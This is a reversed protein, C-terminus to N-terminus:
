EDTIKAGGKIMESYDEYCDIPKDAFQSIPLGQAQAKLEVEPTLARVCNNGKVCEKWFGCYCFDKFCLM